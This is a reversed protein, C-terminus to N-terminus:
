YCNGGGCQTFRNIVCYNSDTEWNSNDTRDEMTELDGPDNRWKGTTGIQVCDSANVGHASAATECASKNAFVNGCSGSFGYGGDCCYEDGQGHLFHGSEHVLLWDADGANAWISGGGGQAIAACDRFEADHIIAEGDTVAALPSVLNNFTRTCGEANAGFPAAWLNFSERYLTYTKAFNQASNFFSGKIISQMDQSFGTYDGSYDSDPYFGLDIKSAAPKDRHWWVPRLIGATPPFGGSYTIEQTSRSSGSVPKATATYSIIAQDGLSFTHTCTASSAGGPFDCVHSSAVANIRCPTVQPGGGLESCDTMEGKVLNITIREIGSDNNTATAKITSTHAIPRYLPDHVATVSTACGGALIGLCCLFLILARKM